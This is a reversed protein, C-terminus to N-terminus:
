KKRLFSGDGGIAFVAGDKAIIKTISENPKGQEAPSSYVIKWNLGGNKTEFIQGDYASFYGTNENTFCVSLGTTPLNAIKTWSNSGNSTKYLEKKSNIYYGINDSIFWSSLNSDSDLTKTWTEGGDITKAIQGADSSDSTYGGSAYGVLASTQQLDNLLNLDNNIATWTNGSDSSKLLSGGRIIVGTTSNFFQIAFITSTSPLSEIKKFTTGSNTTAFMELRATYFNQENLMFASMFTQNTGVNLKTWTRGGDNTKALYGFGGCIIGQNKNIFSINSLGISPADTTIKEFVAGNDDEDSSCGLIGLTLILFCILKKM